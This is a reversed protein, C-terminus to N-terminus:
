ESIEVIVCGNATRSALHDPFRPRFKRDDCGMASAIGDVYAKCRNPMNQVDPLGGRAPPHFTFTLVANPVCPLRAKLGLWHAAERARRTPAARARWNGKAHGSLDAKPWPLYLTVPLTARGSM